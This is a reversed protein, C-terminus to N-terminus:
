KMNAGKSKIHIQLTRIKMRKNVYLTNIKHCKKQIEKDKTM